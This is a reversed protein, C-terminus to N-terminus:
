NITLVAENSPDSQLGGSDYAAVAFYWEGSVLNEVVYTLVGPNHVDIQYDYVGSMRGYDIKYGALDTLLSGDVRTEPPAWSLTASGKQGSERKVNIRRSKKTGATDEATVTIENEGLELDISGTQWSATGSAVGKNGRDDSWSVKYIGLDSSAIGSLSVSTDITDMESSSVPATIELNVDTSSPEDSGIEHRVENSDLPCGSLSLATLLLFAHRAISRYKTM